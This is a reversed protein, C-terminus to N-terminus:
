SVLNFLKHIFKIEESVSSGLFQIQRKKIMHVAELGQTLLYTTRVSKFGLMFRMKKKVFRHDQEIINNLYKKRRLEFSEPIFEEKKLQEIAPHYAISKDTVIVRPAPNHLSSLVKRFFRKTAKQDRKELEPAYAHVLHTHAMKFGREEMVEVVHRLSLPYKLYWRMAQLIIDSPYHKWKFDNTRPNM